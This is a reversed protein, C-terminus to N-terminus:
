IHEQAVSHSVDWEAGIARDPAYDRLWYLTLLLSNYPYIIPEFLHHDLYHEIITDKCYWWLRNVEEISLGVKHQLLEPVSLWKAVMDNVIYMTGHMCSMCYILEVDM